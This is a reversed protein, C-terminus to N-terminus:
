CQFLTMWLKPAGLKFLCQSTTQCVASVPEWDAPNHLSSKLEGPLWFVQVSVTVLLIQVPVNMGTHMIYYPGWWSLYPYNIFLEHIKDYINMFNNM